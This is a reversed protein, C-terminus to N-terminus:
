ILEINNEKGKTHSNKRLMAIKLVSTFYYTNRLSGVNEEGINLGSKAM